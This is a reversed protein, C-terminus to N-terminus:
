HYAVGRTKGARIRRYQPREREGLKIDAVLRFGFPELTQDVFEAGAIGDAWRHCIAIRIAPRQESERVLCCAVEPYELFPAQCAAGVEPQTILGEGIQRSAIVGVRKGRELPCGRTSLGSM